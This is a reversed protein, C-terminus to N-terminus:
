VTISSGDLLDLGRKVGNWGAAYGSPGGARQAHRTRAAGDRLFAGRELL